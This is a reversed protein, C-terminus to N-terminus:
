SIAQKLRIPRVTPPTQHNQGAQRNNILSTVYKPAIGPQDYSPLKLGYRVRWAHDERHMTM